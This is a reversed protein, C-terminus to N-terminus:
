GIKEECQVMQKVPISQLLFGSSIHHFHQPMTACISHLESHDLRFRMRAVTAVTPITHWGLKATTIAALCISNSLSMAKFM